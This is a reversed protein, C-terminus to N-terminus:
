APRRAVTGGESCRGMQGVQQREEPSVPVVAASAFEGRLYHAVQKASVADSFFGLRLFFWTRGARRGEAAYLTYAQFIPHRPASKVDIPQVSWQLQVAFFVPANRAVAERLVLRTSTDEPPLVAVDSSELDEAAVSGTGTRRKELAKLVQADSLPRQPASAGHTKNAPRGAPKAARRFAPKLTRIKSVDVECSAADGASLSQQKDMSGGSSLVPASWADENGFHTAGTDGYLSM